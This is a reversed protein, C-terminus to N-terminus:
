KRCLGFFPSKEFIKKQFIVKKNDKVWQSASKIYEIM